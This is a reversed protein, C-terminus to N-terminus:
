PTTGDQSPLRWAAQAARIASWCDILANRDTAPSAAARELHEM